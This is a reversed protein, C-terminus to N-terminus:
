LIYFFIRSADILANVMFYQDLNLIFDIIRYFKDKSILIVYKFFFCQQSFKKM